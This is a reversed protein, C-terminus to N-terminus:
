LKLFKTQSITRSNDRIELFYTGSTLESIDINMQTSSTNLTKVTRGTADTIVLSKSMLDVPLSITIENQSPNPFLSTIKLIESVSDFEDVTVCYDETEGYDYEGCPEQVQGQNNENEWVMSVRIRTNGLLADTPITIESNMETVGIESTLIEDESFEGDQNSDLWIVFTESYTQNAYGAVVQTSFTNGRNLVIDEDEFLM